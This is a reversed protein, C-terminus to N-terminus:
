PKGDTPTAPADPEPRWASGADEAIMTSGRAGSGTTRSPATGCRAGCRGAGAATWSRSPTHESAPGIGRRPPDRVRQRRAAGLASRVASCRATGSPSRRGAASRPGTGRRRPVGRRRRDARGADPLRRLDGARTRGAPRPGALAEASAASGCGPWIPWRRGPDPCSPWIPAPWWPRSPPSWCRSARARGRARRRRDRQLRAPLRIVAIRLADPRDSAAAGAASRSPTRPTSGCTPFGRCCAPSRSHRDPPDARDLGPDLVASIM